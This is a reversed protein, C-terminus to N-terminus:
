FRDLRKKIDIIEEELKDVKSLQKALKIFLKANGKGFLNNIKEEDNKNLETEKIDKNGEGKM